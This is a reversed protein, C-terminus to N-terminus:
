KEGSFRRITNKLVSNKGTENLPISDSSGNLDSVRGITIDVRNLIIGTYKEINVIIYNQLNHIKGAIQMGYPIRLVVELSYAGRYEKVIIKLIEIEPDFEGVCHFVMQSLSEESISITGRSSFAPTVVTKEIVQPQRKLSLRKTFLIKISDLFMYPYNRKVEVSPVPIIHKGETHRSRRATAIEKETAVDNINIIHQPHPLDLRGAITRVMKNSTGLVLVRKFRQNQLATLVEGSHAPDTFLATKVATLKVRERKASRGAIINQDKILLGDDIILDIGYKQAILQARFSKGTGSRGVLAFVQVGKMLWIVHHYISKLTL